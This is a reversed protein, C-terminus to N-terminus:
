RTCRSTSCISIPTPSWAASCGSTRGCCGATPLAPSAYVAAATVLAGADTPLLRLRPRAVRRREILDLVLWVVAMLMLTTLLLDAPTPTDDPALPLLAVYLVGRVVVLLVILVATLAVFRSMDRMQRRLDIIPGACLLLTLAVVGLVVARTVARWQARTAALDAPAVWAELVFGGDPARIVFSVPDQPVAPSGGARARLTVPVISTPM